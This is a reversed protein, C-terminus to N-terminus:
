KLPKQFLILDEADMPLPEDGKAVLVELYSTLVQYHKAWSLKDADARRFEDGLFDADAQYAYGGERKKDYNAQAQRKRSESLRILENTETIREQAWKLITSAPYMCAGWQNRMM